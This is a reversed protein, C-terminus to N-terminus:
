EDEGPDFINRDLFKGGFMANIKRTVDATAVADTLDFFDQDVLEDQLFRNLFRVWVRAEYKDEDAPDTRSDLITVIAARLLVVAQQSKTGTFHVAFETTDKDAEGIEGEDKHPGIESAAGRQDALGIEDREDGLGIESVADRSGFETAGNEDKKGFDDQPSSPMAQWLIGVDTNQDTQHKLISKPVEIGMARKEWAGMQHPNRIILKPEFYKISM